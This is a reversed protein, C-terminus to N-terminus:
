VDSDEPINALSPNAILARMEESRTEIPSGGPLPLLDINSTTTQKEAELMRIGRKFRKTIASLQSELSARAIDIERADRLLELEQKDKEM